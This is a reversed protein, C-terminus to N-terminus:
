GGGVTLWAGDAARRCATFQRAEASGPTAIAEQYERCFHGSEIRFTRIPMVFGSSGTAPNRWSRTQRSPLSELAEQVAAEALTRDEAALTRYLPNTEALLPAARALCGALILPGLIHPLLRARMAATAELGLQHGQGRGRTSM